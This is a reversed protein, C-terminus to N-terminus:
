KEFIFKFTIGVNNINSFNKYLSFETSLNDLFKYNFGIEIKNSNYGNYYNYINKHKSFINDNLYDQYEYSFIMKSSNNLWIGLTTFLDVQNYEINSVVKYSLSINLFYGVFYDFIDIVDSIGYLLSIQIAKNTDLTNVNKSIDSYKIPFYFSYQLSFVDLIGKYINQILFVNSYYDNKVKDYLILNDNYIFKSYYNYNNLYGGITLKDFLGYEFYFKYSNNRYFNYKNNNILTKTYNSEDLIEFIGLFKGPKLTWASAFLFQMSFFYLLCVYFLLKKNM